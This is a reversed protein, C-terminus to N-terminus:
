LLPVGRAVELALMAAFGIMAAQVPLRAPLDMVM